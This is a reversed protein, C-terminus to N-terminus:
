DDLRWIPPVEQRVIGLERALEEIGEENRNQLVRDIEAQQRNRPVLRWQQTDEHWKHLRNNVGGIQILQGDHPDNRVRDWIETIKGPQKKRRRKKEVANSYEYAILQVRRVGEMLWKDMRPCVLLGAMDGFVTRLYGTAGERSMGEVIDRPTEIKLAADKIKLLLKIWPEIELFNQPTQLSRFELSGFKQLATVNISAYRYEDSMMPSFSQRLAVDRLGTIIAEADEASLCFLNGKRSDGCYNIMLKEFLLYLIIINFVKLRSLEQCNIHIHVGARPSDNIRTSNKDFADILSSLTPKVENRNIPESLVYEFGNGRLSGDRTVFWPSPLHETPFRQGEAEIEIGIEGDVKHLGFIDRIADVM